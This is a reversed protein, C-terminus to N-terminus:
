FYIVAVLTAAMFFKSLRFRKGENSNVVCTGLTLPRFWERLM